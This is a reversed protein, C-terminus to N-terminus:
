FNFYIHIFDFSVTSLTFSMGTDSVLVAKHLSSNLNNEIEYFKKDLLSFWRCFHNYSKSMGIFIDLKILFIIM